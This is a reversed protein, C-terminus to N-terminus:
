SDGTERKRFLARIKNGVWIFPVLLLFFFKKFALLFAGIGIVKAAKLGIVGAVLGAIGYAAVKDGTAHDEYRDGSPYSYADQVLSLDDARGIQDPSTIWVMKEYGRRGLKLAVANVTREGDDHVGQMMWYATHLNENWTPKRIWDVATIPRLGARTSEENGAFTAERVSEILKDPDIDAFDKADVYGVDHWSFLIESSNSRRIIDGEVSPDSRGDVISRFTRADDGAVGAFDPLNAITAKSQPLSMGQVIKWPLARIRRIAAERADAATGSAPPPTDNEAAFAATAALLCVGVILHRM